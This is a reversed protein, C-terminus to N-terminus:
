GGGSTGKVTVPLIATATYNKGGVTCTATIRLETEGTAVGTVTIKGDAPQETVTAVEQNDSTVKWVATCLKGKKDVAKLQIIETGEPNLEVSDKELDVKLDATVTVMLRAIYSGYKAIVETAGTGVGTLTVAFDGKNPEVTIPVAKAKVVGEPSYTFTPPEAGTGEPVNFLNLKLEKTAGSSPVYDAILDLSVIGESWLMGVKPWAGYHLNVEKAGTSDTGRLVTPFPYDQGQLAADSGPFSYKGHITSGNEMNTVWNFGAGLKTQFNETSSDSRNSMQEYTLATLGSINYTAKAVDWVHTELYSLDGRLM